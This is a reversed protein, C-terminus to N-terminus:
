ANAKVIEGGEKRVKTIIPARFQGKAGPTSGVMQNLVKQQKSEIQGRTKGDCKDLAASVENGLLAVAEDLCYAVYSDSIDLLQSPRVAWTKSDLYLNWVLRKNRM